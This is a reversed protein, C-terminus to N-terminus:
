VAASTAALRAAGNRKFLVTLPRHAARFEAAVAEPTPVGHRSLWHNNVALVHDGVVIKRSAKALLPAGTESDDRLEAVEINGADDATLIMGIHGAGFTVTFFQSAPGVTAEVAEVHGAFMSVLAGMAAELAAGRAALEDRERSLSQFYHLAAAAEEPAGVAAAAIPVVAGGGGGGASSSIGSSSSRGFGGAGAGVAGAGPSALTLDYSSAGRTPSGFLGGPVSPSGVLFTAARPSAKRASASALVHRRSEHMNTKANRLDLAAMTHVIPDAVFSEARQM